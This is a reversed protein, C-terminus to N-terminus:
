FIRGYNFGLAERADLGDLFWLPRILSGRRRQARATVEENIPRDALRLYTEAILAHRERDASRLYARVLHEESGELAAIAEIRETSFPAALNVAGLARDVRGLQHQAHAGAAIALTVPLLLPALVAAVTWGGLRERVARVARVSQIVSVALAPFPALGGLGIGALVLAILSLPLLPLMLLSLYGWTVCGLLALALLVARLVTSRPPHHTVQRGRQYRRAPALALNGVVGAMALLVLVHGVVGLEVAHLWANLALAVAPLVVGGLLVLVIRGPM